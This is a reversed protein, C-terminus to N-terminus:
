KRHQIYEYGNIQRMDTTKVHEGWPELRPGVPWVADITYYRIDTMAHDFLWQGIEAEIAHRKDSDITANAELMKAESWPHEIGRNFPNASMYSGYGAAPTPLPSGAHCTAGQYTRAVLQPRLTGYPINQFKVDLGIDDWFQAIIECGETEAPAGRISPTLTISFGEPFGADAILQKATEPNYEWDRGELLYEFGDYMHIPTDINGHGRLVTDVLAQRDIAMVLARRVDAAKIWEESTVDANGSVWPLAPDYGPRPEVGEMPYWQGYIRLNQGVANPIGLTKAGEVQELLPINDFSMLFTDLQGTQFGAIRSSEEPIEKFELEAWYPTQRWHDEVAEMLWFEGTRSDVLDWPGTASMQVAAEDVGLEDTQKKPAIFTSAGGPTSHWRQAVEAVVPDGSNVVVTYPDPAHTGERPEWFKALQGARPHKSLGWQQMSWIVDEATMEGYGGHFQVGKNLKFTWTLFDDSISWSEALLGVVERDMNQMLLGEGIPATGQVFIQPNGLTSPHLIFPGMEKLGVRLRGEPVHGTPLEAAAQPVATPAASKPAEAKAAPAAAKPAEAKAAPAAAKPAEAKAAPASQEPAATGCAVMLALSMLVSVIGLIRWSFVRTLNM